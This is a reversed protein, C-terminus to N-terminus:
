EKPKEVLALSLFPEQLIITDLEIVFNSGLFNIPIETM